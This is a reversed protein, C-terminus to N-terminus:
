RVSDMFDRFIDAEFLFVEANEGRCSEFIGRSKSQHLRDEVPSIEPAPANTQGIPDPSSAHAVTGALPDWPRHRHRTVHPHQSHESTMPHVYSGHM